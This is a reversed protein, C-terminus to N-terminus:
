LPTPGGPGPGDPRQLSLAALLRALAAYAGAFQWAIVARLGDLAWPLYVGGRPDVSHIVGVLTLAACLSLVAAATRTRGEIMAVLMAAWLMATIIFGNGLTVLTALEPLGHAGTEAYLAAFRQPDIWGPNGLKIALLYALLDSSCV